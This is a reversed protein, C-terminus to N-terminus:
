QITYSVIVRILLTKEKGSTRHWYLQLYRIESSASLTNWSINNQKFNVSPLICIRIIWLSRLPLIKYNFFLLLWYIKLKTSINFLCQMVYVLHIRVCFYNILLSPFKIYRITRYRKCQFHLMLYFRFTIYRTNSFKM